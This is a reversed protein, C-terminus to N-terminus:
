RRRVLQLYRERSFGVSEAIARGQLCPLPSWLPAALRRAYEDFSSAGSSREDHCCFVLWGSGFTLVSAFSVLLSGVGM